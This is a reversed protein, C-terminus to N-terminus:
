ICCTVVLCHAFAKASSVTQPLSTQHTGSSQLYTHCYTFNYNNCAGFCYYYCYLLTRLRGVVVVSQVCLYISVHMRVYLYVLLEWSRLVSRVDGTGLVTRVYQRCCTRRIQHVMVSRHSGCGCSRMQKGVCSMLTM